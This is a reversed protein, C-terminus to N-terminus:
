YKTAKAEKKQKRENTGATKTEINNFYNFIKCVLDIHHIVVYTM